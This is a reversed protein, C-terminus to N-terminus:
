RGARKILYGSPTVYIEQAVGPQVYVYASSGYVAEVFSLHEDVWYFAEWFKDVGPEELSYVTPLHSRQQDASSFQGSLRMPKHYSKMGLATLVPHWKIIGGSVSWQDGELHIQRTEDEATAPAYTLEFEPPSLRTVTVRAVLTEGAFALFFHLLMFASGLLLGLAAWGAASLLRHPTRLPGPHRLAQFLSWLGLAWSAVAAILLWRMM